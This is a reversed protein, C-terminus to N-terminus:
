LHEGLIQEHMRQTKLGVCKMPVLFKVNGPGIIILVTSDTTTSHCALHMDVIWEMFVSEREM